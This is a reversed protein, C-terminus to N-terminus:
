RTYKLNRDLFHCHFRRFFSLSFDILSRFHSININPSAHVCYNHGASFKDTSFTPTKFRHKREKNILHKGKQKTRKNSKQLQPPAEGFGM